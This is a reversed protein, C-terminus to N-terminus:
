FVTKINKKLAEKLREDAAKFKREAAIFVVVALICLIFVLM